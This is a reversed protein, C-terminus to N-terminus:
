WIGDPVDKRQSWDSLLTKSFWGADMKEPRSLMLYLKLQDYAPKGLADRRPDGPPVGVFTSLRGELHQAAADRLLPMASAAYQPWLAVLLSDTQNLGFRTYWPAHQQRYQLKGLTNQLERQAKLRVSLRQKEDAAQQVQVESANIAQRNIVFSMVMGAGWLVMACAAIVSFTKGWAFGLKKASLGAPLSPLSNLLIDWRNDKGWRHKVTREANVSAPSFLIGALPSPRYPNLLAGAPEAIFDLNSALQDALELLFFHQTSISIQRTGQEVLTPVLASLRTRLEDPKCAAPLLCGVSQTIRDKQDDAASHLSWLYLPLRWGLLDFRVSFAKAASDMMDATLPTKAQLQGNATAQALASTVWVLGDLPRRRLNRLASLWASGVQAGLDGGWM